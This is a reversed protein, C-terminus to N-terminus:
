LCDKFYLKLHLYLLIETFYTLTCLDPISVILYWVQGLVDLRSLSLSLSLSLLLSLPYCDARGYWAIIIVIHFTYYSQNHGALLFNFIGMLYKLRDM